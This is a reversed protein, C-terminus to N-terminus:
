QKMEALEIQDPRIVEIWPGGREEVFGRIRVTRGSLSRPALNAATFRGELRKPITATFDESWLRGFNVYITGGSERVSLVKGEVIAFRGHGAGIAAPDDARSIDYGPDSWLGVKATRAKREEHLLDAQCGATAVPGGARVLGERLLDYQVPTESGSVSVFATFRGYRDPQASLGQLTLSKGAVRRALEAQAGPWAPATEIGALLIERGDELIISRGDPISAARAPESGPLRCQADASGAPLATCAVALTVALSRLRTIM